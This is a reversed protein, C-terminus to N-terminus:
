AKQEGGLAEILHDVLRGLEGTMLAFDTDFREAEDSSGDQTETLVDLPTVRKIALSETLTFSVRDTWTMALRTCQKGADIHRRLDAADLAHRVYRVTAKSETTSRLETDQDVTFGAPAEDSALWSTMAGVPSQATQLPRAGLNEISENLLQMVEDGKASAAADVVIRGRVPDIWVRTDRWIAFARPLLENTIADKLERMEKRGPKYGQKEEIEQARARAVQNIVSAPLLKKETRLTILLQGGVSHALAGDDRPSIWGMRQLEISSGPQFAKAALKEDLQEPALPFPAALRYIQLNKFWM